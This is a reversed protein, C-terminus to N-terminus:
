VHARGIKDHSLAASLAKDMTNIGAHCDMLVAADCENLGSSEASRVGDSVAGALELLQKQVYRRM